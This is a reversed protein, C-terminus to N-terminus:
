AALGQRAEDMLSRMRQIAPTLGVFIAEGILFHGINLEAIERIPTAAFFFETFGPTEYVLKRYAAMSAASLARAAEVFGKPAAKTLAPHAFYGLPGLRYNISVLVVGDRAFNTGDYVWGAGTRHSGGHIWVMVPAKRAATPAFVNLQLCDESTPGNAGGGNPAGSATMPQPCSVGNHTADREGTWRAAPAPPRWRLEGVPPAAFPVNRWAGVGDHADGVLIGTEVKIRAPEAQAPGSALAFAALAGLALRQIPM